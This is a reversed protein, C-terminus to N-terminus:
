KRIQSFDLQLDAMRSAEALDHTIMIILSIPNNVAQHYQLILNQMKLRLEPDLASLPEDMLLIKPRSVLVRALAVRQNMGGSLQHPYLKEAGELEVLSLIEQALAAKEPTIIGEKIKLPLLVNDLVTMWPFNVHSQHMMFIEAQSKKVPTGQFLVRGSDPRQLGCALRLLTSKGCGSPGILCYIKGAEFVQQYNNFIVKEDFKLSVNQFEIM